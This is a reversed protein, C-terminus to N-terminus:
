QKLKAVNEVDVFYGDRFFFQRRFGEPKWNRKRFVKLSGENDVEFGAQLRNLGLTKFCHDEVLGLAETMYGKGRQSVDGLIFAVDARRDIWSIPGVHINGIHTGDLLCIALFLIEKKQQALWYAKLDALTQPFARFQLYRTTMPDNMWALYRQNIDAETVARLGIREGTLFFVTPQDHEKLMERAIMDHQDIEM